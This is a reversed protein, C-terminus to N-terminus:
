FRKAAREEPVHVRRQYFIFFSEFEKLEQSCSGVELLGSSMKKNEILSPNVNGLSSGRFTEQMGSQNNYTMEKVSTEHRM